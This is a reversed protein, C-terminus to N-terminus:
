TGCVDTKNLYFWPNHFHVLRCVFYRLFIFTLFVNLEEQPIYVVGVRSSWFSFGSAKKEMNLCRLLSSFLAQVHEFTLKLSTFCHTIVFWWFKVSFSSAFDRFFTMGSCCLCIRKKKSKENLFDEWFRAGTHSSHRNWSFASLIGILKCNM